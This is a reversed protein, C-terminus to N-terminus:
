LPGSELGVTTPAPPFHEQVIQSATRTSFANGSSSLYAGTVAKAIAAAATPVEVGQLGVEEGAAARGAITRRSIRTNAPSGTMAFVGLVNGVRDVVAITAPLGRSQAEGVAQAIVRQVDGVTLSRQLPDVFLRGGSTPTPTPTATPAPTGGGGGSSDGGGCSSLAFALAGALCCHAGRRM